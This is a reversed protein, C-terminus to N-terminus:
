LQSSLDEWSEMLEELRNDNAEKKKSIEQLKAVNTANEPDALATDLEENKSELKEIEAEVKKLDNEIKRIRAQEEKQQQWSLKNENAASSQIDPQASSTDKSINLQAREADEKKELYYDY